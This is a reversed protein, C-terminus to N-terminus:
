NKSGGIWDAIDGIVGPAVHAPNVYEAPLSRGKGSMFLHNLDAYSHFTANPRGAMGSQWRDFDKKGVQFDREGQLFLLPISLRSAQAVPDYQKVDLLWASPLGLVVPPNTAGPELAKIKETEVKLTDLRKQAEEAPLVGTEALYQTQDLVLEEIPRANAALFMVGALKGDEAAIRPAAYGGLSHGLLYVRASAVEPQIRMFAAAALADDITEERLTFPLQSMERGYAMTRKDYRLVAIGRSSLGEALDAFVKNARLSEDRDNPGPGHVLVLGPFPGKGIPITLTGGLKWLESGITVLRERFLDPKSYPPHQWTTAPARSDAPRFHIAALQGSEEINFQITLKTKTYAVPFSVVAMKGDSTVVPAGIDGAKGFAGLEERFRSRLTDLTFVQKLTDTFMASLEPYQEALLYDLARRGTAAPAPSPQAGAFESM